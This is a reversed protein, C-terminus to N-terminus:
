TFDIIFTVRTGQFDLSIKLNPMAARSALVAQDLSLTTGGRPTRSTRSAIKRYKNSSLCAGLIDRHM